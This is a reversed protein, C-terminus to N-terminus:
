LLKVQLAGSRSIVWIGMLQHISLSNTTYRYKEAIFLFLSYIWAGVHIFRLFMTLSLLWICLFVFQTIGNVYLELVPSVCRHQHLDSYHNGESTSTKVPSPCPSNELSISIEKIKTPYHECLHVCKDFSMLGYVEFPHM